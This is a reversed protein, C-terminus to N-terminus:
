AGGSNTLMDGFSTLLACKKNRMHFLYYFLLVKRQLAKAVAEQAKFQPM